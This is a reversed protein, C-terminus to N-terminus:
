IGEVFGCIRCHRGEKPAGCNLCSPQGKKAKPVEGVVERFVEYYYLHDKGFFSMGYALSKTRFEEDEIRSAIEERLFSMGSGVELPRKEQWLLEEPLLGEFAKRLIWKGHGERVKLEKPLCTALAKVEEDMFPRRVEIGFFKGLESSNFHLNRSLELIYGELDKIGAMYDYGAFLEDSGDGTMTSEFGKEKITRMGFFVTLDNPIAPDFSKLIRVVEKLADEADKLSVEVVHLPVDLFSALSQAYYLDKGKGKVCVTIAEFPMALKKMMFALIASDLGGSLLVSQAKHRKTSALLVERLRELM